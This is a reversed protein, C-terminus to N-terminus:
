LSMLAITNTESSQSTTLLMWHCSTRLAYTNLVQQASSVFNRNSRSNRRSTAKLKEGVDEM